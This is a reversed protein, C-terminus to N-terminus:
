ARGLTKTKTNYTIGPRENGDVDVKPPSLMIVDGGVPQQPLSAANGGGAFFEQSKQRGELQPEVTGQQHRQQEQVSVTGDSNEDAPLITTPGEAPGDLGAEAQLSELVMRRLADASAASRMGQETGIASTANEIARQEEGRRLGLIQDLASRSAAGRVDGEVAQQAGSMGFGARGGRARADVLGEGLKGEMQRTILAEEETTDVNGAAGIRSRVFDRIEQDMKDQESQAAQEPTLPAKPPMPPPTGNGFDGSGQGGGVAGAVPAFGTGGPAVGVAAQQGASAGLRGALDTRPAPAKGGPTYAPQQASPGGFGIRAAIPKPAAMPVPRQAGALTPAKPRDPPPTAAAGIASQDMLANVVDPRKKKIMPNLM